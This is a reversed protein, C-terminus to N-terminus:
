LCNVEISWKQVKRRKNSIVPRDNHYATWRITVLFGCSCKLLERLYPRYSINAKPVFCGRTDWYKHQNSINHLLYVANPSQYIFCTRDSSEFIWHWYNNFRMYKYTSLTNLEKRFSLFVFLWKYKNQLTEKVESIKKKNRMLNFSTSQIALKRSSWAAKLHYWSYNFFYIM